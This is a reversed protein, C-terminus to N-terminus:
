IFVVSAPILRLLPEIMSMHVGSSVPAIPRPFAAPRRIRPKEPRDRLASIARL